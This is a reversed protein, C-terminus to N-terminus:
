PRIYGFDGDLGGTKDAPLASSAPAPGGNGAPAGFRGEINGMLYFEFDNPEIYQDTPLTQKAMNLPKVLHPTVIIVLETENKRFQSSRFLTGLVPIDGLLPVKRVIQRIDDKLLGAIAFSQGDALEVTTSVRRTTIAPIEFGELTISNTFDLDSVEPAVQMSIKNNSLVTPTFNLGVGYTKYEITITNTTGGQPVPVPFEGGALFNATKGSLAILTPEALVKLLGNEKLADIFVTWTAGGGLFHLIASVSSSVGLDLVNATNPATTATDVTTLNDLMSIGFTKGGDSLYSFNVGMRKILSRSMESVRVELMVQNVGGVEMLNLVAASKGDKQKPAYTNALTQIQNMNTMSSVTGSLTIADPSATVRVGEESPMLQHIKEKLGVLDPLVELDYVAMITNDTKWLTLNTSGPGKGTLYIQRTTLTLLEAVEPAAISVRKLPQPCEVIISKGVTLTLKQPRTANVIIREPGSAMCPLAVILSLILATLFSAASRLKYVPCPTM